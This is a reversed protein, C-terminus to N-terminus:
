LLDVLKRFNFYTINTGREGDELPIYHESKYNVSVPITSVEQLDPKWFHEESVWCESILQHLFRLGGRAM